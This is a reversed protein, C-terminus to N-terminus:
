GGDGGAVMRRLEDALADPRERAMRQIEEALRQDERLPVVAPSQEPQERGSPGEAAARFLIPQ